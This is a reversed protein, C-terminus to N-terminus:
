LHALEGNAKRADKLKGIIAQQLESNLGGVATCESEEAMGHVAICVADKLMEM